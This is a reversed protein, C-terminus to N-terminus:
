RGGCVGHGDVLGRSLDLLREGASFPLQQANCGASQGVDRDHAELLPALAELYSAGSREM